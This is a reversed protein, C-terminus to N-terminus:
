NLGSSMYHRDIIFNFTKKIVGHEDHLRIEWKASLDIETYPLSIMSDVSFRTVHVMWDDSGKLIDQTDKVEITADQDVDTDNYYQCNVFFHEKSLLAEAM